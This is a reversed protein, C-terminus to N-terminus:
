IKTISHFSPAKKSSNATLEALQWKSASDRLRRDNWKGTNWPKQFDNQTLFSVLISKLPARNELLLKKRTSTSTFTGRLHPNEGLIM